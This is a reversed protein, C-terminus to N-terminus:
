EKPSNRINYGLGHQKKFRNWLTHVIGISHMDERFTPM